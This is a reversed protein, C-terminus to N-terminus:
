GSVEELEDMSFKQTTGSASEAEPSLPLTFYFTSGQGLTSTVGIKGGHGEVVERAIALGLGVSGPTSEKADKVQVFKDFITDLAENPIGRGTDAVEVQVTEHERRAFITVHGQAPTYRLANSVLNNVVWSLQQPDGWLRPLQPDVELRLQVEQKQFLLRLPALADELVQRLDILESRRQYTGSELRSFDLLEKVLKTLRECDERTAHLLDRQRADLRGLVEELLIGVAMKISTLPTRFEHSVTAIFESKMQDLQKFRTVDELLTVIWEIRGHEDVIRTQRPRFYFSSKGHAVHVLEDSKGNDEAAGLLKSWKENKMAEQLSEGDKHEGTAQLFGAAAQNMLVLGQAKDTVIVPEPISAVIAESKKKETILQHINLEEYEQLRETMKNFERLLGGIEDDVTVDIKQHLHGRKMRRVIKTLKLVPKLLNRTFQVSAIIGLLVALIAVVAVALTTRKIFDEARMQAKRLAEQNVELLQLCHEKLKYVLPRVVAAQYERGALQTKKNQLLLYLSDSAVLYSRYEAIITDLIVPKIPLSLGENASQYWKLFSDRHTRFSNQAKEVDERFMLVQANDQRELAKIMNEAVLNSEYADGIIRSVSSGLRSFNYVSFISTALIICVLVLYGAGIKFRLSDPAFKM